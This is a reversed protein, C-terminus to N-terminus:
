DNSSGARDMLRLFSKNTESAQDRNMGMAIEHLDCDCDAGPRWTLGLQRGAPVHPGCCPGRCATASHNLLLDSADAESSSGPARTCVLVHSMQVANTRFYM